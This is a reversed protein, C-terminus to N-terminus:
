KRKRWAYALLGFLGCVALALASPEPVTAASSFAQIEKIWIGAGWNYDSSTLGFDFYLSKTNARAFSSVDITAYGNAWTLSSITALTTGTFADLSDYDTTSSKVIVSAPHRDAGGDWIRITGIGESIGTDFGHVLVRQTPPNNATDALVVGTDTGDTIAASSWGDNYNGSTVVSKGLLINQSDVRGTSFGQVENMAPGYNGGVEKGFKLLVSQAGAAIGLNAVDSYYGDTSSAAYSGNVDSALTALSTTKLFTYKSPNLADSSGDNLSSSYYVSVSAAARQSGPTWSFLRLTDIASASSFGRIQLYWSSDGGAPDSFVFTNSTGDVANATVFESMGNYYSSSAVTSGTFVNTDALAAARASGTATAMGGVLLLVVLFVQRVRM